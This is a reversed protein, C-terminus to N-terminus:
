LYTGFGLFLFLPLYCNMIEKDIKNRLLNKVMIIMVLKKFFFYISLNITNDVIVEIERIKFVKEQVEQQM